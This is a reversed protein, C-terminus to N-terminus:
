GGRRRLLPVLGAAGLVLGALVLAIWTPFTQGEGLDATDAGADAPPGATIDSAAPRDTTADDSPDDSMGRGKPERGGKDRGKGKGGTATESESASPDSTSSPDAAATSSGDGTGGDDGDRDGDGGQGGGDGGHGGDSDDDGATDDHATPAVDPASANGSGQHWSFALYGGDPVDLVGVGRTSYVWSGSEGDSWWLSWYATAPPTRVCPNDAPKGSVRCVFGPDEQTFTLPYGADPFVESAAKDAGDPDCSATAGGGLENFDVIVTVGTDGGCAARAAQPASVVLSAGAAAVPLVGGAALVLSAALASVIRRTRM